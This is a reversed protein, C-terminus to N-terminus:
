FSTISRFVDKKSSEESEVEEAGLDVEGQNSSSTRKRGMRKKSSAYTYSSSAYIATKGYLLGGCKRHLWMLAENPYDILRLAPDGEYFLKAVEQWWKQLQIRAQEFINGYITVVYIEAL